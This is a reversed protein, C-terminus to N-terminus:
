NKITTTKTNKYFLLRTLNTLITSSLWNKKQLQTSFLQSLIKLNAYFWTFVRFIIIDLLVHQTKTCNFHHSFCLYGWQTPMLYPWIQSLTLRYEMILHIPTTQISAKYFGVLAFCNFLLYKKKSISSCLTM